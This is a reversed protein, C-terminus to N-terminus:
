KPIEPPPQVLPSAAAQKAVVKDAIKDANGQGRWYTLLATVAVYYKLDGLPIVGVGSLVALSGQIGGLIRTFHCTCYNWLGLWVVILFQWFNTPQEVM